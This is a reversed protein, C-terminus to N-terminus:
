DHEVLGKQKAVWYSIVITPPETHHVSHVQSLPLWIENKDHEILIANDTQHVVRTFTVTCKEPSDNRM